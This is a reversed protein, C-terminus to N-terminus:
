QLRCNGQIQQVSLDLHRQKSTQTHYQEHYWDVHQQGLLDRGNARSDTAHEFTPGTESAPQHHLLLVLTHVQGILHQLVNPASRCETPASKPKGTHDLQHGVFRPTDVHMHNAGASPKASKHVLDTSNPIGLNATELHGSSQVPKQSSNPTRLNPFVQVSEAHVCM